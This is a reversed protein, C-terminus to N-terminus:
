LCYKFWASQDGLGPQETERSSNERILAKQRNQSSLYAINIGAIVIILLSLILLTITAAKYRPPLSFTGLLWTGAVGGLQFMISTFATATARRTYPAANNAIWTSAAPSGNYVGSVILFLSGYKVNLSEVVLFTVLGATALTSSIIIVLGRMGYQNLSDTEEDRDIAGTNQLENIIYEKENHHLFHAHAPSHPLVMFALIGCLFSFLGELIFIWAWGSRQGIGDMKIIGYALIGGLTSLVLSIALFASIRASYIFDVLSNVDCPAHYKSWR